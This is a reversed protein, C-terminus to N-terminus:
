PSSLVQEKLVDLFPRGWDEMREELKETCDCDSCAWPESGDLDRCKRRSHADRVKVLEFYEEWYPREEQLPEWCFCVEVWRVAGDEVSRAQAMNRFYEDGAVSGLGLTGDEIAQLLAAERGPRVRATVLYRM